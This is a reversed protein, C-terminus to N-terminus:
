DVFLSSQSELNFSINAKAVQELTLSSDTAAKSANLIPSYYHGQPFLQMEKYKNTEAKQEALANKLDTIESTRQSYSKLKSSIIKRFSM